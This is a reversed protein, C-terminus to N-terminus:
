IYFKKNSFDKLEYHNPGFLINRLLFIFNLGLHIYSHIAYVHFYVEENHVM